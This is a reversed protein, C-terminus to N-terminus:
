SPSCSSHPTTMAAARNPAQAQPTPLDRAKQAPRACQLTRPTHLVLAADLRAAAVGPNCPTPARVPRSEGALCAQTPRHGGVSYGASAAASRAVMTPKWRRFRCHNGPRRATPAGGGRGTVLVRSGRGRFRSPVAEISDTGRHPLISGPTVTSTLLGTSPAYHRSPGPLPETRLPPETRFPYLRTTSLSPPSINPPPLTPRSGSTTCVTARCIAATTWSPTCTATTM